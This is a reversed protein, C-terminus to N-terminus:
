AVKNPAEKLTQWYDDAHFRSGYRSELDNLDSLLKAEGKSHIYNIPGGLFPAFGFGFICGADLLDADEVIKERLCAAAENFIRFMLRDQLDKSFGAAQEQKNKLKKGNKYKYFGENSKKGLKGEQVMQKLKEPVTLDLHESMKELAALCVDLGVTDALEIPGMPMGFDKAANDITPGSIGEELLVVAELMYPLLIRNVLFGPSSKVPVPLKDIAKVFGLSHKVVEPYTRNSAVVEVLPMMPVPNFFHIGVLRAPDNLAGSIEDLPITSTNTALIADKKAKAELMKFLEQKVALKETVAEIIVDAKGICDGNLDPVLRDLAAQVLHKEKLKRKALKALRQYAKGILEPAMDQLSVTFGKLACVAAIDGGMVGSGVVHIHKPTFEQQKGLAKLKESLYFVRVLNQATDSVILEGISKTEVQLAKPEKVGYKVWNKVIKFPAPYHKKKIKKALKNTFVKGLIPRIFDSNTIKNLDILKQKKVPPNKAFDKAAKTLLRKAVVADVVGMKKAAKARLNRGSLIMDMANLAGVLKPLRVTGGWGPQIGLKVEPLGLVTKPSDEAIRYKCALALELGGGLCFGNIVAITPLKLKALKVFVDQGSKILTTAAESSECDKFQAIDAGVIFSSKNSKIVLAQAQTNNELSNLIQDLERLVEENLSNQASDQRDLTLWLINDQDLELDWHKRTGSVMESIQGM